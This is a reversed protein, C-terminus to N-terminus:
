EGSASLVTAGGMSVGHLLVRVQTGFRNALDNAWSICDRRDKVGMTAYAGESQGHGRDDPLLMGFGISRYFEIHPAYEHWAKSQFGHIGIVYNPSDGPAPFLTGHLKLGDESTIWVDEHPLTKMYAIGAEAIKPLPGNLYFSVDINENFKEGPKKHRLNNLFNMGIMHCLWFFGAAIVALVALIILVPM